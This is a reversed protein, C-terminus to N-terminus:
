SRPCLERKQVERSFVRSWAGRHICGARDLNRFPRQDLTFYILVGSEHMQVIFM